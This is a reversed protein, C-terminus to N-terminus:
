SLASNICCNDNNLWEPFVRTVEFSLMDFLMDYREKDSLPKHLKIQLKPTAPLFTLLWDYFTSDPDKILEPVIIKNCYEYTKGKCKDQLDKQMAIFKKQKDIRRIIEIRTNNM